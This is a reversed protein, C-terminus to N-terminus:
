VLFVKNIKGDLDLYIEIHDGPVIPREAVIRDDLVFIDRCKRGNIGPDEYAIYFVTYPAGKFHGEKSVKGPRMGIVEYM